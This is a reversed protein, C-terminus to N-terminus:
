KKAPQKPYQYVRVYDVELRVPFVTPDIGDIGGWAGGVAINMLLHFNHDWPWEDYSATGKKATFVVTSDVYFTFGDERWDMRYNHFAKCADNIQLNGQLREPVGQSSHLTSHIDGPKSGVMEMIDIEGDKPWRGKDSLMWIAPWTGRGCPLKARVDVFGYTWSARGRTILRASSYEQGVWDKQSSLDEKRAEIILVGNEVRANESRARTYYQRENHWWFDRNAFTDYDWKKPDPAGTYNFEDSWVLRADPPIVPEAESKGFPAAILATAAAFAGLWAGHSVKKTVPISLM